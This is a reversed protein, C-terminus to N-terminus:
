IETEKGKEILEMRNNDENIIIENNKNEESDVISIEEKNSEENINEGINEECVDIFIQIFKNNQNSNEFEKEFWRYWSFYDIGLKNALRTKEDNSTIAQVFHYLLRDNSSFIDFTNNLKLSPMMKRLRAKKGPEVTLNEFLRENSEFFMKHQNEVVLHVDKLAVEQQEEDNCFEGNWKLIEKKSSFNSKNITM